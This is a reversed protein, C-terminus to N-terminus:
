KRREQNLCQESYTAWRLNCLRNDNKDRNIHDVTPKNEPNELFTECVLRHVSYHHKAISVHRYGGKNICGRLIRKSPRQVRGLDSVLIDHIPHKKWIEGNIPQEADTYRWQFGFITKHSNNPNCANHISHPHCKLTNAAEIVSVYTQLVEGDKMQDVKRPM